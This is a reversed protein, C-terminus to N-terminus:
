LQKLGSKAGPAITDSCIDKNLVFNKKKTTKDIYKMLEYIDSIFPELIISIPEQDTENKFGKKYIFEMTKFNYKAQINETPSIQSIRDLLEDDIDILYTKKISAIENLFILSSNILYEYWRTEGYIPAKKYFDLQNIQQLLKEKDYYINKLIPDNEDIKESTAKYIQAIVNNINKLSYILNDFLLKKRKEINKKNKDDFFIMIIFAAVMSILCSIFINYRIFDYTEQSSHNLSYNRCYYIIILIAIGISFLIKTNREIFKKINKIFNKM